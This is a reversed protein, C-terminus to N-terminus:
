DRIRNQVEALHSNFELNGDQYTEASMSLIEDLIKKVKDDM